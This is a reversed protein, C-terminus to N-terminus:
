EHSGVQEDIFALLEEDSASELKKVDERVVEARSERELGAALSRLQEAIEAQSPHGAPIEALMRELQDLGTAVTSKGQSVGKPGVEGL